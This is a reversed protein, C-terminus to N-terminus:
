NKEGGSDPVNELVVLEEHDEVQEGERCRLEAIRGDRPAKLAHEMKMAEVVILTEGAVVAQGAEVLVSTVRGPMPARITDGDSVDDTELMSDDDGLRFRYRGADSSVTIERGDQFWSVSRMADEIEIQLRDGRLAGVVRREAGGDLSFLTGSQEHSIMIQHMIAGHRLRIMQRPTENLRWGCDSTWPDRLCSKAANRALLLGAVASFIVFEGAGDAAPLVEDRNREIFGTDPAGSIFEPQRLIRELFALNSTIGGIHTEQLARLLARRAANRDPGHAILKAIMPDYFVSIDAGEVVGSDVRIGNEQTPFVLHNLRGTQPLFAHDPDEAYIRVEMAHGNCRVEEQRLPLPAGAAVALQLAVLDLGTIAETVPHEVQLRTNMEMFYFQQDAESYLFEITGAGVYGIAKAASVAAAFMKRRVEEPIGPAPAEEVVKQHRRQVSCDRDYLHLCNGHSDAFVQVEVHRPKLLYRELLVNDDGFASAAERKASALAVDFEGAVEVVKMGKGGGGASAKILVPYGILGAQTKLTAPSQDDGHYGPVLPVGAEAMLAKAKAKEGMARIATPPPGVFILGARVCEEAFDANESLFGYGPHVADAKARKAATIIAQQDLYSAKAEGPGIRHAEDAMAVHPADRDADSYVAITTIGLSRATRIIRCAIEGRNAILLRHIPSSAFHKVM